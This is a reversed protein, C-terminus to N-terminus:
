KVGRYKGKQTLEFPLGFPESIFYQQRKREKQLAGFSSDKRCELRDLTDWIDKRTTM